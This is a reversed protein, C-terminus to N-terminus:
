VADGKNQPLALDQSDGTHLAVSLALHNVRNGAHAVDGGTGNLQGSVVDGSGAHPFDSAHLQGMDRLVAHGGTHRGVQGDTLVDDRVLQAPLAEGAAAKQLPLFDPGIALFHDPLVLYEAFALVHFDAAEGASVDM